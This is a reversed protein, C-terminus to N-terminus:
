VVFRNNPIANNVIRNVPATAVEEEEKENKSKVTINAIKMNLLM